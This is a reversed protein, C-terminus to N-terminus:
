LSRASAPKIISATGSAKAPPANKMYRNGFIMCPQDRGRQIEADGDPDAEDGAEAHGGLGADDHQDVQAFRDVLAAAQFVDLRQFFQPLGHDFPRDM